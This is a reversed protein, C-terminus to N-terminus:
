RSTLMCASPTSFLCSSAGQCSLPVSPMSPATLLSASCRTTPTSWPCRTSTGWCATSRSGLSTISTDTFNRSLKLMIENFAGVQYGVCLRGDSFVDLSQAQAPLLVERLRAHRTKLRTIEYIIVQRKVAVCLCYSASSTPTPRMVGTAFVICGKTDAVKIWETDTQDLARIPVLRM